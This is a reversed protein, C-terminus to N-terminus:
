RRGLVRRLDAARKDREEETIRKTKARRAPGKKRDNHKKAGAM